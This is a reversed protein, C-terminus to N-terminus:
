FVPNRNDCKEILTWALLLRNSINVLTSSATSPRHTHDRFSVRVRCSTPLSGCAAFFLVFFATFALTAFFTVLFASAFFPAFFPAVPPPPPAPRRVRGTRIPDPM